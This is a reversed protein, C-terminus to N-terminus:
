QKSIVIFGNKFSFNCKECADKFEEVTPRKTWNLDSVYMRYPQGNESFSVYGGGFLVEERYQVRELAYMKLSSPKSKFSEIREEATKM